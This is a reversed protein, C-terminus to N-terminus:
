KARKIAEHENLSNIYFVKYTDLFDDFDLALIESKSKKLQLILTVVM